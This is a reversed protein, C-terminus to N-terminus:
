AGAVSPEPDSLERAMGHARAKALVRLRDIARSRVRLLLWTKVSGRTADFSAAKQWAELFVDHLLDEADRRSGLVRTAVGLMVPAHRDYLQTLASHDGAVVRVLIQRDLEADGTM